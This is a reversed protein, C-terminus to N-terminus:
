YETTYCEKSLNKLVMWEKSKLPFAPIYASFFGHYQGSTGRTVPLDPSHLAKLYM